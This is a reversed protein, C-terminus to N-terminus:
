DNRHDHLGVINGWPDVVAGASPGDHLVRYGMGELARAAEEFNGVHLSLPTHDGPLALPVPNSVKYLTISGGEAQAVTWVPNMNGSLTLGLIDRYLHVAADMDGVQLVLHGIDQVLAM